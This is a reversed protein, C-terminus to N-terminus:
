FDINKIEKERIKAINTLCEIAKGYRNLLEDLDDTIAVRAVNTELRDLEERIAQTM